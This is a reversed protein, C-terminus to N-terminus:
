SQKPGAAELALAADLDERAQETRGMDTRILARLRYAEADTRGYLVAKDARELADDLRNLAQLVRAMEMGVPTTFYRRDQEALVELAGELDGAQRLDIALRLAIDRDWYARKLAAQLAEVQGARDGMESLIDAKLLLPEAWHDIRQALVDTAEVAEDLRGLKRLLAIRAKHAPVHDTARALLADWDALASETDGLKEKLTGRDFQAQDNEPDLTLMRDLEAVARPLRDLATLLGVRQQQRELDDPLVQMALEFEELATELDDSDPTSINARWTWVNVDDPALANAARLDSRAGATDGLQTRCAGRWLLDNASVAGSFTEIALFDALALDYQQLAYSSAGRIHLARNALEATPELDLIRSCDDAAAAFHSCGHRAQSRLNLARLRDDRQLDDQGLLQCCILIILQDNKSRQAVTLEALLDATGLAAPADAVPQPTTELSM